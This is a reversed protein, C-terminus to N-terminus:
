FDWVSKLHNVRMVNWTKKSTASKHKCLLLDIKSGRKWLLVASFHDLDDINKFTTEIKSELSVLQQEINAM